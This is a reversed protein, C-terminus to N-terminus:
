PAIQLGVLHINKKFGKNSSHQRSVYLPCSNTFLWNRAEPSLIVYIKLLNSSIFLFLGAVNGTSTWVNSSEDIYSDIYPSLVLDQKLRYTFLM